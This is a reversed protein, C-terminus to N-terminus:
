LSPNSFHCLMDSPLSTEHCFLFAKDTSYKCHGLYNRIQSLLGTVHFMFCVGSFSKKLAVSNKISYIHMYIDQLDTAACQFVYIM